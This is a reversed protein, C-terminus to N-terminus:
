STASAMVKQKMVWAKMAGMCSKPPPRVMGSRMRLPSM